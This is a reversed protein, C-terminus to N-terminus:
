KRLELRRILVLLELALDGPPLKLPAALLSDLALVLKAAISREARSITPKTKKRKRM